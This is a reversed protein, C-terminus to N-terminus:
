HNRHQEPLQCRRHEPPRQRSGVPNPASGISTGDPVVWEQLMKHAQYTQLAPLEETLTVGDPTTLRADSVTSTTIGRNTFAVEISLKDGPLVNYGSLANLQTLTCVDGICRERLIVAPGKMLLSM